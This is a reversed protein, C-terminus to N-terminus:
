AYRTKIMQWLGNFLPSPVFGGGDLLARKDMVSLILTEFEKDKVDIPDGAQMREWVKAYEPLLMPYTVDKDFVFMKLVLAAETRLVPSFTIPPTGVAVPEEPNGFRRKQPRAPVRLSRATPPPSTCTSPNFAEPYIVAPSATQPTDVFAKNMAATFARAPVPVTALAASAALVEWGKSDDVPASRKMMKTNTPRAPAGPAKSSRPSTPPTECEWDEWAIDIKKTVKRPACPCTKTVPSSPLPRPGTAMNHLMTQLQDLGRRVADAGPESLVIRPPSSPATCSM